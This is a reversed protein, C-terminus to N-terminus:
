TVHQLVRARPAAEFSRSSAIPMCINADISTRIPGILSHGAFVELESHVPVSPQAHVSDLDGLHPTLWACESMDVEEIASGAIFTLCRSGASEM